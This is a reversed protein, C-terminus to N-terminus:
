DDEWNDTKPTKAQAFGSMGNIVFAGQVFEPTIGPFMLTTGPQLNMGQTRNILSRYKEPLDSSMELLTEGFPNGLIEGHRFGEFVSWDSTPTKIDETIFINEILVNGDVVEMKKIEEVFPLPNGLRETFEADTMHVVLPAPRSLKDDDTWSNIENVLLDRVSEFGLVMNTRNQLHLQPIGKNDIYDIGRVGGYIDYVDDSYAYVAIEYRPRIVGQKASRGVMEQITAYLADSVAEIRTKGTQAMPKGMSGSIDLLYVILARHDSTAINTYKEAM